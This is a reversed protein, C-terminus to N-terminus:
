AWVEIRGNALGVSWCPRDGSLGCTLATIAAAFRWEQVPKGMAVSWLVLTREAAVAVLSGDPALAVQAEAPLRGTALATHRGDRITYIRMASGRFSAAAFALDPTTIIPFDLYELPEAIRSARRPQVTGGRARHALDWLSLVRLVSSRDPRGTSFTLLRAGDSSLFRRHVRWRDFTEGSPPRAPAEWCELAISWAPDVPGILPRTLIATAARGEHAWRFPDDDALAMPADPLALRAIPPADWLQVDLVGAPGHVAANWLTRGDALQWVRTGFQFGWAAAYAGSASLRVDQLVGATSAAGLSLTRLLRRQIFDWVAVRGDLLGAALYPGAAAVHLAALPTSDDLGLAAIRQLPGSTASELGKLPVRRAVPPPQPQPHPYPHPHPHPHQQPPPEPAPPPVSIGHELDYLRRQEPNGLVRYALNLARMREASGTGAVDPHYRLALRRYALRIAAEDAEPMVELVAYYDTDDAM